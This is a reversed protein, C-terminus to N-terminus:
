GSLLEEVGTGVTVSSSGVALKAGFSDSLANGLEVTV